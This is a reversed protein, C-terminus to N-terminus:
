VYELVFPPILKVRLRTALMSLKKLEEIELPSARTNEVGSERDIWESLKIAFGLKDQRAFRLDALGVQLSWPVKHAPRDRLDRYRLRSGHYANSM